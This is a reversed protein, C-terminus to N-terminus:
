NHKKVGGREAIVTLDQTLTEITLAAKRYARIKFANEGKVELIDAIENFIRAIDLNHM